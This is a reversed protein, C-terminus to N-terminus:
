GLDLVPSDDPTRLVRAERPPTLFRFGSRQHVLWRCRTGCEDCTINEDHLDCNRLRSGCIKCVTFRGRFEAEEEQPSFDDHVVRCNLCVFVRDTNPDRNEHDRFYALINYQDEDSLYAFAKLKRGCFRCPFAVALVLKKLLFGLGIAGVLVAIVLLLLDTTRM